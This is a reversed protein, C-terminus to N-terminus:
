STGGRPPVGAVMGPHEGRRAPAPKAPPRGHKGAGHPGKRDRRPRGGSRAFHPTRARPSLAPRVARDARRRRRSAAAGGRRGARRRQSVDRQRQRPGHDPVGLRRRRRARPAHLGDPVAAHSRQGPCPRHQCHGPRGRVGRDQRPERHHVVWVRANPAGCVVARRGRAAWRSRGVITGRHFGRSRRQALGRGRPPHPQSQADRGEDLGALARRAEVSGPWALPLPPADGAAAVIQAVPLRGLHWPAPTGALTTESRSSWAETPTVHFVLGRTVGPMIQARPMGAVVVARILLPLLTM